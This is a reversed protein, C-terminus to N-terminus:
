RFRERNNFGSAVKLVSPILLEWSPVAGAPTPNRPFSESVNLFLKQHSRVENSEGNDWGEIEVHKVNVDYAQSGPSDLLGVDLSELSLFLKGIRPHKHDIARRPASTTRLETLPRHPNRRRM